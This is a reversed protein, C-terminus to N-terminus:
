KLNRWNLEDIIDRQIQRLSIKSYNTEINEKLDYITLANVRLKETIFKLRDTQKMKSM